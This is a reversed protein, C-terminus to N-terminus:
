IRVMLELVHPLFLLFGVVASCLSVLLVAGAMMDKVVGVQASLRPKLVDLVLEVASNLVELTLVSACLLLILIYEWVDFQVVLGALLVVVAVRCQIRFSREHTYVHRLGHIAHQVSASYSSFM